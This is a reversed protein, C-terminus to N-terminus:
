KIFVKSAKNGSVKIYLKGSAPNDVRVGQLDYFVPATDSGAIVNGIGLVEHDGTEINYVLRDSATETGNVTYVLEVGLTKTDAPLNQFYVYRRQNDAGGQSFFNYNSFTYPVLPMDEDIWRYEATTFTYPEGDVYMRFALNDKALLDGNIDLPYSDFTFATENSSNPGSYDQFTPTAPKASELTVPTLSLNSYVQYIEYTGDGSNTINGMHIVGDAATINLTEEDFNVLLYNMVDQEYLAAFTVPDENAFYMMVQFSPAIFGNESRNIRVWSDPYKPVFGKVWLVDDNERYASATTTLQESDIEYTYKYNYIKDKVSEVPTFVLDKAEQYVEESNTNSCIGFMPFEESARLSIVGNDDIDFVLPDTYFTTATPGALGEADLPYLAAAIEINPFYFMWQGPDVTITKAESDYTGKVYAPMTRRLLLNPIYVSGDDTFVLKQVTHFDGMFGFTNDYNLFDAYYEVSNGEPAVTIIEAASTGLCSASLAIIPLLLKKM